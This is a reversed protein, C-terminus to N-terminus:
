RLLSTCSVQSDFPSNKLFGEPGHNLFQELVQPEIWSMDNSIRGLTMSWAHDMCEQIENLGNWSRRPNDRQAYSSFKKKVWHFEPLPSQEGFSFLGLCHILYPNKHDCYRHSNLDEQNLNTQFQLTKMHIRLTKGVSGISFDPDGCFFGEVRIKRGHSLNHRVFRYKQM